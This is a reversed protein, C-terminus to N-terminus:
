WQAKFPLYIPQGVTAPVSKFMSYYRDWYGRHVDDSELEMM